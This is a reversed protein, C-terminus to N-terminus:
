CLTYLSLSQGPSSNCYEPAVWCGLAGSAQLPQPQFSSWHWARQQGIGVLGEPYRIDWRSKSIKRDTYRRSDTNIVTVETSVKHGQSLSICDKMGNPSLITFWGTRRWPEPVTHLIKCAHINFPCNSMTNNILLRPSLLVAMSQSAKHGCCSM